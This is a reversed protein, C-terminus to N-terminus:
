NHGGCGCGERHHTDGEEIKLLERGEKNYERDKVKESCLYEVVESVTFKGDLNEEQVIINSGVESEDQEVNNDNCGYLLFVSLVILLFRIKNM